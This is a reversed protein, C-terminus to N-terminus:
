FSESDPPAFTQLLRQDPLVIVVNGDTQFSDSSGSGRGAGMNYKPIRGRYFGGPNHYAIFAGANITFATSYEYTSAVTEAFLIDSALSANGGNSGSNAYHGSGGGGGNYHSASHSGSPGGYWGGGGGGTTNNAANGGQLIAGANGAGTWISGGGTQSSRGQSHGIGGQWGGGGGGVGHHTNSGHGGGAGGGAIMLASAQSVGTPPWVSANPGAHNQANYFIGSLGGGGSGSSHGAGGGGFARGGQGVGVTTINSPNTTGKQGTIITYPIDKRFKMIGWTYGGYGGSNYSSAYSAYIGAGAGWMYVLGVFNNQPIITRSGHSPASVLVGPMNSVPDVMEDITNIERNFSSGDREILTFSAGRSTLKDIAM